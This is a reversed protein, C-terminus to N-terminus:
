LMFVYVTYNTKVGEPERARSGQGIWQGSAGGRGDM